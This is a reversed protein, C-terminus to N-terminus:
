PALQSPQFMNTRLSTILSPLQPKTWSPNLISNNSPEDIGNTGNLPFYAWGIEPNSKLFRMLWEFWLGQSGRKKSKTCGRNLNCTNFEGLWIPAQIRPNKSHLIFGWNANMISLLSAYTSHRNFHALGGKWPGWEHPSYVLQHPVNFVIPDVRVGRLISGWWYSEVGGKKGHVPYLEIGEVFILVNPNIALLANGAATAAAAWDTSPKWFKSPYKGWTAGQTLYRKVNWPGPGNTHPENRIDFGVVTPNNKYREALTEWDHLWTKFGYRNWLAEIHSTNPYSALTGHNDLIIYLHARGAAAVIRDLVDLPHLGKLEPSAKIYKPKITIQSNYRVMQESIPLRISNFGLQKVEALIAGLSRFNLGSPVYNTTNMGFWTVSTLRVECGNADVIWNGSTHLWGGSLIPTCAGTSGAAAVGPLVFNGGMIATLATAVMLVRAVSTRVSHRVARRGFDVVNM